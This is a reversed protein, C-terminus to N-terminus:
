LLRRVLSSALVQPLELVKAWLPGEIHYVAEYSVHSLGNQSLTGVGRSGHAPFYPVLFFRVLGGVGLGHPEGSRLFFCNDRM